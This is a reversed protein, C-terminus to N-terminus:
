ETQMHKRALALFDTLLPSCWKDVHRIMLLATERPAAPWDLPILRGQQLDEAISTRPCLAIGM